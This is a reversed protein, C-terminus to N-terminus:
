SPLIFLYWHILRLHSLQLVNLVFHCNAGGVGTVDRYDLLHPLRVSDDSFFRFFGCFGGFVLGCGTALVMFGSYIGRNLITFFIVISDLLPSVQLYRHHLVLRRRIRDVVGYLDGRGLFKFSDAIYSSIM